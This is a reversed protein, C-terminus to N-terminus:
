FAVFRTWADPNADLEAVTGSYQVHGTEMVYARDALTRAFSLNQESILMSLGHNRLDSLRAALAEVVVPALGEAPEDLLLLLPNGMLTRAITLMQQQGGSLTGAKRDQLTALAPFLACIRELDWLAATSERPPSKRGLELNERVTLSAFMRRNEPVLGIGRHAIRHPPEGLIDAGRFCIRGSAVNALGMVASMTTTKGAGNRGLLLVVEGAGVTLSVGYLAHSRGYFADISEVVLLDSM